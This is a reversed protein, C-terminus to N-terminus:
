ASISGLAEAKARMTGKARISQAQALLSNIEKTTLGTPPAAGIQDAQGVLGYVVVVNRKHHLQANPAASVQQALPIAAAADGRLAAALAMNTKIDLDDPKLKLAQALTAQAQDVQGAFIQAVGLRNYASSTNVLPAAQTLARLGADVDGMEIMASGLGLLAPGDSPFKALAARYASVAADPYGARMYAEGAKIFAIPKADPLATARQYLAIATGSEGQAEIDAALQVLRDSHTAPEQKAAASNPQTTQCASLAVCALFPLTIIPLRM